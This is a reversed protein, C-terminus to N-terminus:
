NRYNLSCDFYIDLQNLSMEAMMEDNNTPYFYFSESSPYLTLRSFSHRQKSTKYDDLTQEFNWVSKMDHITISEVEKNYKNLVFSFRYGQDKASKIISRLRIEGIAEKLKDSIIYVQDSTKVSLVFRQGLKVKVNEGEFFYDRWNRDNVHFIDSVEELKLYQNEHFKYKTAPELSLTSKPNQNFVTSTLYKDLFVKHSVKSEKLDNMNVIKIDDQPQILAFSQSRIDHPVFVGQVRHQENLALIVGLIRDSAQVKQHIKLLSKFAESYELGNQWHKDLIITEKNKSTTDFVTLVQYPVREEIALLLKFRTEDQQAYISSFINFVALLVTFHWKTM